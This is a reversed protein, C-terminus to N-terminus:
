CNEDILFLAIQKISLVGEVRRCEIEYNCGPGTIFCTEPPLTGYKDILGDVAEKMTPVINGPTATVLLIDPTSYTARPRDPTDAVTVSGTKAVLSDCAILSVVDQKDKHPRYDIFDIENLTLFDKLKRDQCWITWENESIFQKLCDAFERRSELYFFLGGAKKFNEVFAFVAEDDPLKWTETMQDVDEFESERRVKLSNRIDALIKEKNTTIQTENHRSM